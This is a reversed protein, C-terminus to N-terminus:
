AIALMREVINGRKHPMINRYNEDCAVAVACHRKVFVAYQKLAGILRRAARNLRNYLGVGVVVGM